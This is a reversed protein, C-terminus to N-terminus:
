ENEVNIIIKSDRRYSYNRKFTERTVSMLDRFNVKLSRINATELNTHAATRTRTDM